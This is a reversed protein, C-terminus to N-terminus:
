QKKYEVAVLLGHMYLKEVQYGNSAYCSPVNYFITFRPDPINGNMSVADLDQRICDWQDAHAIKINILTYALLGATIFGAMFIIVFQLKLKKQM